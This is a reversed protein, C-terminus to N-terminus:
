AAAMWKPREPRSACVSAYLSTGDFVATANHEVSASESQAISIVAVGVVHCMACDMDVLPLKDSGDSEAAHHLHNHHGFHGVDQSQEHQCYAGAAAWTYQLPVLAFLVILLIRQM